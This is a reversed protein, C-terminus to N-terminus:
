LTRTALLPSVASARRAPVYVALQSVAAMCLCGAALFGIGLRPVGYEVSLWYSAALALFVGIVIGSVTLLGNEALLYWLIDRRRAGLARCTGIQRLRANVGFTALGYIGLCSALVILATATVLLARMNRDSLYFKREYQELTRGYKIVRGRNSSALHSEAAALIEDRRGPRTRVIYLYDDLQPLRPFLAVENAGDLGRLGSGILDDSIGIVTAPKGVTDFVSQGLANAGHFLIEAAARTIIVNPVFDTMNNETLPPLIEEARFARGAVIHAGLAEIGQQDMSFANLTRAPGKQAPNTWIDTSFGVGSFPVADTVSAAVVGPISRLYALDERLTGEFDFHEAFAVSSIVFINKDDLGSPRALVASRQQVIWGANVLVALAIAIEAVVLLTGAGNRMLTRFILRIDLSM